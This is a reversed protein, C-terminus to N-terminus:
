KIAKMVSLSRMRYIMNYLCLRMILPCYQRLIAGVSEFSPAVKYRLLTIKCKLTDFILCQLAVCFSLHQVTKILFEVKPVKLGANEVCKKSTKGM